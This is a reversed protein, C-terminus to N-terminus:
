VPVVLELRNAKLLTCVDACPPIKSLLYQLRGHDAGHPLRGQLSTCSGLEFCFARSSEPLSSLYFVGQASPLCSGLCQFVDVARFVSNTFLSPFVAIGGCM